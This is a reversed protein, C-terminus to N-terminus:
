LLNGQALATAPAPLATRKPAASGGLGSRIETKQGALIGAYKSADASSNDPEIPCGKSNPFLKELYQKRENTALILGEGKPQQAELKAALGLFMGHMFAERNKLRRNERHNWASRFHRQLFVFVYRAVECDWATGVFTVSANLRLCPLNIAPKFCIQLNFFNVLIAAAFRAEVPLRLKLVEEVHTVRQASEQDPNVSALDIGHRRALEAAAALANEIEGATGGRKMRLLKKIKEIVAYNNM